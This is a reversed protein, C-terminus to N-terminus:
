RAKGCRRSRSDGYPLPASTSRATGPFYSSERLARAGNKGGVRGLARGPAKKPKADALDKRLVEILKEEGAADGADHHAGYKEVLL